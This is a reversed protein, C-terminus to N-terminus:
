GRSNLYFLLILLVGVILVAVFGILAFLMTNSGRAPTPAPAPTPASDPAAPTAARDATVSRAREGTAAPRHLPADGPKKSVFTSAMDWEDGGARADGMGVVAGCKSCFAQEPNVEAGCKQCSQQM